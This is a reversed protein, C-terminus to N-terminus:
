PLAFAMYGDGSKTGMKGGGCAIVVFQKGGATYTAPTAYGGAPLQFEWLQKGDKVDFARFKEDKTAGIFLVGGATVLPGGYNETGTPPIGAATLEPLEGLSRRWLYEGTNLDLANLTGWPPRVAPYGDPDFFRRYGTITFPIESRPGTTSAAVPDRPNSAVPANTPEADLLFDVLANRQTNNLFAFAPMVARGNRLLTAVDAPQMKAKLNILTPVNAAANGSRDPAHCGTCLQTYLSQGLSETASGRTPILQLIWAMENGNVYLVGSPDVAAGGWEGGGDFGPLVITGRTSPPSFPVHPTAERLRALVAAHAAPTRNTVEAETFVQRAFPEPKLLRPQTPATKEGDVTSAPVPEEKWPFLSEGTERDFVWVHGSKTIQAVAAIKKGNRMVTCLTPPAPLDRDWVDHHVFQFHWRRRGTGADLAILCNAFLNDGLRNGGWFDFSASGTPVFALGREHDVTLGAWNNAGGIERWADAPWTDHGFEGPHPITHFIWRRKGTRVDYGRIHGPATPGPGESLRASVIILDRYVAGPSTGVLHLGKTDRDLDALLDARGNDGFTPILKGTAPNIAHLFNGATYLIRREEGERWFAIGRNVGRSASSDAGGFPDFTWLERGTHAELAFLKLRPTTGYLVGDIILPNCQIQSNNTADGTKFTWAPGLQRVNERTIQRLTSYHSAGADGLYVPWNQDAANASVATTVIAAAFAWTRLKPNQTKPEHRRFLSRRASPLPFQAPHTEM